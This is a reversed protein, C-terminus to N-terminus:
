LDTLFADRYPLPNFPVAVSFALSNSIGEIFFFFQYLSLLIRPIFFVFNVSIQITSFLFSHLAAMEQSHYMLIFSILYAYISYHM